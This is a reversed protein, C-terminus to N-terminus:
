KRGILTKCLFKLQKHTIGEDCTFGYEESFYENFSRKDEALYESWLEVINEEDYPDRKNQEHIDSRYWIDNFKKLWSLQGNDM